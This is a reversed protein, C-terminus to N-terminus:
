NLNRLVDFLSERACCNRKYTNTTQNIERKKEKTQRKMRSNKKEGSTRASGHSFKIRFTLTLHNHYCLFLPVFDRGVKSGKKRDTLGESFNTSVLFTQLQDIKAVKERSWSVQVEEVARFFIWQLFSKKHSRTVKRNVEDRERKREHKHWARAKSEQM